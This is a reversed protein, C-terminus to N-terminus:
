DDRLWGACFQYDSEVAAARVEGATPARGLRRALAAREDDGIGWGDRKALVMAGAIDYAWRQGRYNAIIREGARKEDRQRIERVKGHGDHEEWPAGMSDDRTSAVRFTRGDRQITGLSDWHERM